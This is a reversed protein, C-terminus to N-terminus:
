FFLDLDIMFFNREKKEGKFDLSKLWGRQPNTQKKKEPARKPASFPNYHSPETLTRKKGTKALVKKQRFQGASREL